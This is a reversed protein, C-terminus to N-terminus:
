PAYPSVGVSKRQQARLWQESSELLTSGFGQRQLAPRVAILTVYGQDWDPAANELPVRRALALCFGVVDGDARAVLAGDTQFNPDLLVQRTFRAPSIPDFAMAESLVSLVDGLDAPRYAQVAHTM